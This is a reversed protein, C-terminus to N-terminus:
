SFPQIWAPSSHTSRFRRAITVPATAVAKACTYKIIKLDCGKKKKKKSRVYRVDENCMDFNQNRLIRVIISHFILCVIESWQENM